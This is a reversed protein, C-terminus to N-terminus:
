SPLKSPENSDDRTKGCIPEQDDILCMQADLGPKRTSEGLLSRKVVVAHSDVAQRRALEPVNTLLQIAREIAM